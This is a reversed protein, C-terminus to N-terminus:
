VSKLRNKLMTLWIEVQNRNTFRIWRNHGQARDLEYMSALRRRVRRHSTIAWWLISERSFFVHSFSEHCESSCPEAFGFLRGLTRWCLWPFYTIFPIDLWLTYTTSNQFIQGLKGDYNGDVVWGRPNQALASQVKSQFDNHESEIWNPQWFLSDLSIYPVDLIRAVEKGLTSKGAGSCGVIKLRISGDDDRQLLPDTETQLTM